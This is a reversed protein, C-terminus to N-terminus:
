KKRRKRMEILLSTVKNSLYSNDHRDPHCLMLLDNLFFSDFQNNKMSEVEKLRQRLISITDTLQSVSNNLDDLEQKKRKKFCDVCLNQWEGKAEYTKYCETCRKLM